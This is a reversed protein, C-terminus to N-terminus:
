GWLINLCELLEDAQSHTQVNQPTPASGQFRLTYRVLFLNYACKGVTKMRSQLVM